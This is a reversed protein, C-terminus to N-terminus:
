DLEESSPHYAINMRYNPFGENYYQPYYGSFQEGYRPDFFNLINQNNRRNRRFLSGIPTCKFLLFLAGIAGSVGLVPVPEVTELVKSLAFKMKEMITEPNYASLMSGASKDGEELSIDAEDESLHHVYHEQLQELRQEPEPETLGKPGTPEETESSELQKLQGLQLLPLPLSPLVTLELPVRAPPVSPIRESEGRAQKELGKAPSSSVSVLPATHTERSNGGHAQPSSVLVPPPTHTRGSKRSHAQSSYGSFRTPLPKEEFKRGHAHVTVANKDKGPPPDIKLYFLDSTNKTCADKAVLEDKEIVYKLNTLANPLNNDKEKCEQMLSKHKEAINSINRCLSSSDDSKKLKTFYDYLEYLKKMKEFTDTDMYSLKSICNFPGGSAKPDVRMFEDFIEFNKEDVRYYSERVTKNLWYNIYNCCDVQHITIFCHQREILKKLECFTERLKLEKEPTNNTRNIIYNAFSVDIKDTREYELAKKVELYKHYEFYWPNPPKKAM